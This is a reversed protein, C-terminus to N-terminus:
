NMEKISKKEWFLEKEIIEIPMFLRISNPLSMSISLILITIMIKLSSYIQFFKIILFFIIGMLLSGLHRQWSVLLELDNNILNHKISWLMLMLYYSCIFGLYLISIWYLNKNKKKIAIFFTILIVIIFWIFLNIPIQILKFNFPTKSIIKNFILFTESHYIGNKLLNKIQKNSFKFIFKSDLNAIQKRTLNAQLNLQKLDFASSEHVEYKKIINKKGYYNLNSFYFNSVLNYSILSLVIIGFIIFKKRFINEIIIIPMLGILIIIGNPKIM